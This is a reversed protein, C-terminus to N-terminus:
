NNSPTPTQTPLPLSPLPCVMGMEIQRVQPPPVRGFISAISYFPDSSALRDTHGEYPMRTRSCVIAAVVAAAISGIRAAVRAVKARAAALGVPCDQTIVTGDDRRLMRACLRGETRAILAQAEQTTMDSLNYVNLNCQDCHRVQDTGTMSEWDVTCPSAIRLDSLQPLNINAM